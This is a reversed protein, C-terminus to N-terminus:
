FLKGRERHAQSDIIWNIGATVVVITNSTAKVGLQLAPYNVESDESSEDDESSEEEESSESSRNSSPM